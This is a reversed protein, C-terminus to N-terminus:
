NSRQGLSFAVLMVLWLVALPAFVIAIEMSSM